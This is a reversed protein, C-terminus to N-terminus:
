RLEWIAPRNNWFSTEVKKYGVCRMADNFYRAIHDKHIPKGEHSYVNFHGVSRAGFSNVIVLYKPLTRDIVEFAHEIPAQIHEFYESAFVLDTPGDVEPMMSFNREAGLLSAVGFQFTEAIQTGYVEAMPFIEKLAATTYGIGCGLDAVRNVGVFHNAFKKVALVSKRSYAVWCAWVDAVFHEDDYVDYDARGEALAAYWRVELLQMARRAERVDGDGKYYKIASLALARIADRDFAKFHGAAYLYEDLDKQGIKDFISGPSIGTGLPLAAQIQSLITM